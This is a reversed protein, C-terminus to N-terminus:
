LSPQHQNVLETVIYDLLHECCVQLMAEMGDVTVEGGFDFDVFSLAEEIRRKTSDDVMLDSAAPSVNSYCNEYLVTPVALHQSYAEDLNEPNQPLRWRVRKAAPATDSYSNRDPETM